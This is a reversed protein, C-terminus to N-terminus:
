NPNGVVIFGAWYFPHSTQPDHLIRLEAERLTRITRFSSAAPAVAMTRLRHFSVMLKTTSASEVKWQSVVTSPVGAIFFAWSLGIVGEGASVRGRATECASLIALDARLNMQAIEWAELLGDENGGEGPSLLLHSYMPKNENFIGHTALHLIQFKGAEAKFRDERADSGVYVESQTNGFLKQLAKVEREADPLAGLATDRYLSATRNITEPRIVPNGMAFLVPRGNAFTGDGNKKRPRMMERLVTLSPAYGIACDELLYRNKGPSLAQFPLEWLTQDPVLIWETKGQLQPEAPKLLLNYLDVSTPRFTLDRLALQQRFYRIKKGLEKAKVKILHVHLEPAGSANKTLVFLYTAQEGVVFELIASKSHPLLQGAEQFTLPEVQGRKTKLEPHNVYLTTQFDQYALRAKDLQSKIAELKVPDPRSTSAQKFQKNLSILNNRLAEERSQEDSTMAKRVETKGSQLVDLLVRGKIQESYWLAQNFDKESILLEVMEQYPALRDTFFLQLQEEGGATEARMKKIQAIASTLAEHSKDYQGLARYAM